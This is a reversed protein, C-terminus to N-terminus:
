QLTLSIQIRSCHFNQIELYFWNPKGYLILKTLSSHSCNNINCNISNLENLTNRINVFNYCNLFFHETSDVELSCLPNIWDEFNHNFRHKNLHSLGLTLGNLLKLGLPNYINFTPKPVSRSIKLLWNKFISCSKSNHATWDTRNLLWILFFHINSFM